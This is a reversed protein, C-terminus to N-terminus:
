GGDIVIKVSQTISLTFIAPQARMDRCYFCTKTGKPVDVGQRQLHAMVIARMELEGFDFMHRVTDELDPKIERM